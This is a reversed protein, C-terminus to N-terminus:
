GYNHESNERDIDSLPQNDILHDLRSCAKTLWEPDDLLDQKRLVKGQNTAFDRMAQGIEDQAHERLDAWFSDVALEDDVPRNVDPAAFEGSPSLLDLVEGLPNPGLKLGDRGVTVRKSRVEILRAAHDVDVAIHATMVSGQFTKEIGYSYTKEKTPNGRADVVSVLETRACVVGVTHGSLKLPNVIRAWWNKADNWQSMKTEIDASPDKALEERAKKSNRARAGAWASLSGWLDNGSDIIVANLMGEPPRQACGWLVSDELDAWSRGWPLVQYPPDDPDGGYEDASGEGIDIVWTKHIRPHWAIKYSTLSKGSKPVGSVLFVPAAAVGTPARPTPVYTM